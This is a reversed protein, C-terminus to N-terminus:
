LDAMFFLAFCYKHQPTFTAGSSAAVNCKQKRTQIRRRKEFVIRIPRVFIPIETPIDNENYQYYAMGWQPVRWRPVQLSLDCLARWSRLTPVAKARSSLQRPPSAPTVLSSNRAQFSPYLPAVITQPEISSYMIHVDCTEVSSHTSPHQGLWTCPSTRADATHM